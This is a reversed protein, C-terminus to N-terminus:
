ELWEHTVVLPRYPPVHEDWRKTVDQEAEVGQECADAAVDWGKGPWKEHMARMLRVREDRPVGPPEQFRAILAFSEAAHVPDRQYFEAPWVNASAGRKRQERYHVEARAMERLQKVAPFREHNDLCAKIVIPRIDEAMGDFVEAYFQLATPKLKRPYFDLLYMVCDHGNM